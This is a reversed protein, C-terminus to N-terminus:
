ALCPLPWLPHKLRSVGEGKREGHRWSLWVSAVTKRANALLILHVRLFGESFSAAADLWVSGQLCCLFHHYWMESTNQLLARFESFLLSEDVCCVSSNRRRKWTCAMLFSTELRMILAQGGLDLLNSVLDNSWTSALIRGTVRSLSV